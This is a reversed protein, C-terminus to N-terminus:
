KSVYFLFDKMRESYGWENDYWGFVQGMLGNVNTLLGDIVVSHPDGSFDSSVLPEMTLAVISKKARYRVFFGIIIIIIIIIGKSIM